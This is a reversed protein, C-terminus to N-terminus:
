QGLSIVGGNPLKSIGKGATFTLTQPQGTGKEMIGRQHQQVLGGTIEVAQILRDDETGEMPLPLPFGNHQNGM